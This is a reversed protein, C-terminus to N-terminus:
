ADYEGTRMIEALQRARIGVQEAWKSQLMEDAAQVFDRRELAALMKSFGMFNNVGLNFCMDVLVVQRNEDLDVFCKLGDSLKAIFYDMDNDLLGFAEPLSIGNLTLNRGIGITLHGSTDTYPYKEYSEHKFLLNRLKLKAEPTM